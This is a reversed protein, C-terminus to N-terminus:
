TSRQVATRANPGTRNLNNDDDSPFYTAVPPKKKKTVSGKPRGRRKSIPNVDDVEQSPVLSMAM